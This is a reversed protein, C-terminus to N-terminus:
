KCLKIFEIYEPCSKLFGNKPTTNSYGKADCKSRVQLHKSQMFKNMQMQGSKKDRWCGKTSTKAEDKITKKLIDTFRNGGKLLGKRSAVNILYILYYIM